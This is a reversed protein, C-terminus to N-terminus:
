YNASADVNVAEELAGTSANFRIYGPSQNNLGVQCAGAPYSGNTAIYSCAIYVIQNNFRSFRVEPAVVSAGNALGFMAGSTPLPIFQSLVGATPYERLPIQRPWSGAACFHGPATLIVLNGPTFPAAQTPACSFAIVAAVATCTLVHKMTTKLNRVGNKMPEDQ